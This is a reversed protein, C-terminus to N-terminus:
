HSHSSYSSSCNPIGRNLQILPRSQMIYLM